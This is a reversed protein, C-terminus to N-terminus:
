FGAPEFSSVSFWIRFALVCPCSPKVKFGLFGKAGHLSVGWLPGVVELVCWGLGEYFRRM